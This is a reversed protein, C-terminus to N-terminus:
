SFDTKQKGTLKALLRFVPVLIAINLLAVVGWAGAAALLMGFGWVLVEADHFYISCGFVFASYAAIIAFFPWTVSDQHEMSTAAM